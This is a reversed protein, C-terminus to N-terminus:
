ANIKVSVTEDGEAAAAFAIGAVVNDTETKNIEGDDVDWYVDDGQSIAVAAKPLSWVEEIAVSGEAGDEIDGLAVGIKTGIVVVGDSAVASGTGNVWPMVKGEQVHNQAM